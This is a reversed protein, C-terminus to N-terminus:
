IQFGAGFCAEGITETLVRWACSVAIMQFASMDRQAVVVMPLLDRKVNWINFSMMPVPFGHMRLARLHM